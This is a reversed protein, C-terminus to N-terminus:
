VESLDESWRAPSVPALCHHPHPHPLATEAKINLGLSRTLVQPISSIVGSRKVIKGCRVFSGRSEATTKHIQKTTASTLNNAPAPAWARHSRGGTVDRFSSPVFPFSESHRLTLCFTKEKIPCIFLGLSLEPPSASPCACLLAPPSMTAQPWATPTLLDTLLRQGPERWLSNIFTPKRKM